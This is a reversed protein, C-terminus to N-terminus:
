PRELDTRSWRALTAGADYTSDLFEHLTREPSPSRRVDEYMLIYEGLTAEYRAAAPRIAAARFGDPEPAAYAYFAADEVPGSGPWFGHSIVEHSYSERTIPDAGPREPARRGSFRTCALDFSGWFFHVPSCKGIFRARFDDLVRTAEAFVRWGRQAQEPVYSAHVDDRAFPIPDPIEVPVPWIKVGLNMQQLTAMLREHFAAVSMPQLALTERRGDATDVILQHAIFDFELRFAGTGHFLLPTEFGRPTVRFAVNWFHNLLPTSALCIKGVIQMWMHLTAYTPRWETLPLAPWREMRSM